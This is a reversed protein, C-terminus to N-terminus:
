TEPLHTYSVPEEITMADEASDPNFEEASAETKSDSGSASGDTKGGGCAALSFVMATALMVAVIKKKM